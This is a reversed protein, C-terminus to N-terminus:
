KKNGKRRTIKNISNQQQKRASETAVQKEDVVPNVEMAVGKWYSEALSLLSAM